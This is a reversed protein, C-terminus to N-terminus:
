EDRLVEVPKIQAAKRAPFFGALSGALILIIVAAIALNIDVTPNRFMDSPPLKSNILELLGIGLVVGIYGAISTLFISEQLVLSIISIPKAGVAKRIGIEKTREKIVITMINSIGVIGAIITMIGIIWVFLKIASIVKRTQIYNELANAIGIARTDNPDFNHHRAIQHRINEELRKSEEISIDERMMVSLMQINRSGYVKQATTVPIYICKNNNWNDKDEFIGVILMPFGNAKIYKGIPNDNPFLEARVDASIVAVKRTEVIDINNLFRGEKLEINEIIQYEPYVTRIEFRASKKGYSVINDGPIQFRSSLRSINKKEINKVQAYDDNNMQINRGPKLGKYNLSTQGNWIWLSNIKSSRFSYEIANQIGNGAGLLIILMFIGWAVSFGTLFTRLKNQRLTAFIEQWKDIDFM